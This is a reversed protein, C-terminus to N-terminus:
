HESMCTSGVRMDTVLTAAPREIGIWDNIPVTQTDDSSIRLQVRLAQSPPKTPRVEGRNAQEQELHSQLKAVRSVSACQRHRTIVHVRYTHHSQREIFKILDYLSESRMRDIDRTAHQQKIGM